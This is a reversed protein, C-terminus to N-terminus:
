SMSSVWGAGLPWPSRRLGSVSASLRPARVGELSYLCCLSRVMPAVPGPLEDSLDCQEAVGRAVLWSSVKSDLTANPSPPSPPAVFQFFWLAQLMAPKM